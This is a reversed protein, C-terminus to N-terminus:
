LIQIDNNDTIFCLIFMTDYWWWNFISVCIFQCLICGANLLLLVWRAGLCPVMAGFLNAFLVLLFYHQYNKKGNNLYGFTNSTNSCGRVLHQRKLQRESVFPTDNIYIDTMCHRHSGYDCSARLYNCAAPPAPLFVIHNEKDAQNFVNVVPIPASYNVIFGLFRTLSLPYTRVPDLHRPHLHLGQTIRCQAILELPLTTAQLPVPTPDLYTAIQRAKGIQLRCLQNQVFMFSIYVIKKNHM